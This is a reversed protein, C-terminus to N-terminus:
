LDLGIWLQGWTVRSIIFDLFSIWNLLDRHGSGHSGLRQTAPRLFGRCQTSDWLVGVHYKKGKRGSLHSPNPSAPQHLAATEATQGALGAPAGLVKAASEHKENTTKVDIHNIQLASPPLGQPYLPQFKYTSSHVKARAIVPKPWGGGTIRFFGAEKLNELCKKSGM